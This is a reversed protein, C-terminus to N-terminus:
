PHCNSSLAYKFIDRRTGHSVRRWRKVVVHTKGWGDNGCHAVVHVRGRRLRKADKVAAEVWELGDEGPEVVLVRWCLQKGVSFECERKRTIDVQAVVGERSCVFQFLLNDLIVRRTKLYPWRVGM